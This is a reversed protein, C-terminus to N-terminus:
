NDPSEISYRLRDTTIIGRTFIDGTYDMRYATYLVLM